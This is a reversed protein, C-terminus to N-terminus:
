FLGNFRNGSRLNGAIRKSALKGRNAAIIAKYKNGYLVINDIITGCTLIDRVFIEFIRGCGSERARESLGSFDIVSNL